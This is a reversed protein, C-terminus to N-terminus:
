EYRMLTLYDVLYANVETVLQYVIIFIVPLIYLAPLSYVEFGIVSRVDDNM